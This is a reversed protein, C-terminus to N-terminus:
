PRETFNTWPVEHCILTKEKQAEIGGDGFIDAYLFCRGPLEHKHIFTTRDNKDTFLVGNLDRVSFSTEYTTAIRYLRGFGIGAIFLALLLSIIKYNM